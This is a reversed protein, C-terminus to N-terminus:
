HGRLDIVEDALNKGSLFIKGSQLGIIGEIEEYSMPIEKNLFAKYFEEDVRVKLPPSIAIYHETEKIKNLEEMNPYFVYSKAPMLAGPFTWNRCYIIHGEEKTKDEVNKNMKKAIYKV